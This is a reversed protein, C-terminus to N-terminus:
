SPSGPFLDGLLRNGSMNMSNNRHRESESDRLSLRVVQRYSLILYLKQDHLQLEVRTINLDRSKTLGVTCDRKQRLSDGEVVVQTLTWSPQGVSTGRDIVERLIKSSCLM